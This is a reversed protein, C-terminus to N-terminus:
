NTGHILYIFPIEKHYAVFQLLGILGFYKDSFIFVTMKCLNLEQFYLM